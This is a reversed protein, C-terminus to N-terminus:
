AAQLKVREADCAEGRKWVNPAIGRDQSGLNAAGDGTPPPSGWTNPGHFM